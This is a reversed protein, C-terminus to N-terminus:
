FVIGGFNGSSMMLHVANEQPANSIFSQLDSVNTFVHLDSRGFAKQVDEVTIEPLRKHKIVEPSFYVVAEDAADMSGKYHDLFQKNLSSFTHLEMCAILTRNPYQEKVAATTAKLKSPAHAFDRYVAFDDSERVLELRRSAGTFSSIAGYFDANGIGVERCMLRAAELNQLNHQGFISLQVAGEDTILFTVGNDIRHPPTSYPIKHIDKRAHNALEVLTPDDSCYILTGNPEIKDIFIQFQEVYNEWTPFVNM